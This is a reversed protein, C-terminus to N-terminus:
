LKMVANLLMYSMNVPRLLDSLMIICFIINIFLCSTGLKQLNIKVVFSGQTLM